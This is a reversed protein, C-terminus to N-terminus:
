VDTGERFREERLDVSATYWDPVQDTITVNPITIFMKRGHNDRYCYTGGDEDIAELELRRVLASAAADDFIQADFSVDRYYTRTRVTTPKAGSVPEYVSERTTRGFDRERTYRLNTRLREPETVSVLVVGGLSVSASESVPDSPLMDVGTMITQTIEYTYEIGSAPTYDTFTLQTPSTIRALIIREADVGSGATRVITYDQWIDTAYLTQEWNLRVASNWLDSGINVPDATFNSVLDTPPYEVRIDIILSQGELSNSDQVWVVLDYDTDNQVFGSPITYTSESGVIEGSDYIIQSANDAYLYVRYRVQDSTNWTVEISSTAVTSGDLPSTVDVSPGEAYVFVAEASKAATAVSTEEGSYLTGDYSYADWRYTAYSPLDGSGTQYEWWGAPSNYAMTRTALVTGANNKIRAFGTLGTAPTDDTDSFKATLLPYASVAVGNMPALGSPVTPAANTKFSRKASWDSWQTGDHGRMSYQYGTGWALASLGASAWPITFPTGPAASSAVDAINYDAGTQLATNGAANWIRVQVRKMSTGTQHTWKGNFTPENTEIKGNPQGDLTITGLATPTFELWSSWDSWAGFHDSMQVRWEYATGRVLATGGYARGMYMHGDGEPTREAQSATYTANWMSAGDSKRRVQIRYQNLYDGRNTNADNFRARFVPTTTVISGLPERFNPVSPRQNTDAAAWISIHGEYSSSYAGFPQPPPQGIGTRDYFRKNDAEFRSAQIMGFSLYGSTGLVALHYNFGSHIPIAKFNVGNPSDVDIVAVNASHEAGSVSDIMPTSVNFQSSYGLRTNPNLSASDYLAIRANVNSNSENTNKGGWIGFRYVWLHQTARNFTVGRMQNPGIWGWDPRSLSYHRGYNPM